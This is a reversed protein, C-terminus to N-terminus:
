TLFITPFNLIFVPFKLSFSSLIFLMFHKLKLVSTLLKLDIHPIATEMNSSWQSQKIGYHSCILCNLHIDVWASLQTDGSKSFWVWFRQTFGNLYWISDVKWEVLLQCENCNGPHRCWGYTLHSGEGYNEIIHVSKRLIQVISVTAWM